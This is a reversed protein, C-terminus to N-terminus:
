KKILIYNNLIFILLISHYFATRFYSLFYLTVKFFSKENSSDDMIVKYIITNLSSSIFFFILITIMILKFDKNENYSNTDVLTSEPDTTSKKVLITTSIASFLIQFFDLFLSEIYWIEGVVIKNNQAQIVLSEFFFLTFIILTFITASLIIGKVSLTKLTKYM